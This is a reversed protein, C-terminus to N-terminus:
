QIVLLTPPDPIALNFTAIVSADATINVTCTGTGSCGGGNWGDFQYGPSPAATLLISAGSSYSKSCDPSCDVGAPSSTVTGSGNGATSVTLVFTKLTFNATVSTNATLNVTCPATGSCAGSWGTFVSDSAPTANLTVSTGSTYTTTCSSGCDIGPPSSTVIGSGSGVMAVTLAFTSPTATYTIVLKPRQNAQSNESSSLVRNSDAAAVPDSNVLMGFNTAGNNVWDQVMQTVTWSKYGNTTDLSQVDEAVAIDGQALPIGNFCCSNASWANTGDYTFGTALSITPDKNIVKHVSLDYAADGGNGQLFLSLTASQIAAGQPIASLDWKMLITNAIQDTPWTYSNLQVEQSYNQADLNLFTDEITNPHNSTLTNGWEETISGVPLAPTTFTAQSGTALNSAGDKSLVRYYYLISPSLGNLTQGHGTTLSSDLTTVSGYAPTLGYEIQSDAPEDTTWTITASYYSIPNVSVTSIIPPIIDPLSTTNCDENTYPSDGASNFARVQYCYTAGDTLGNDAYTRVNAGVLAIQTYAGTQGEKREIKFGDENSSNDNWTLTLQGASAEGYSVALLLAILFGLRITKFMTMM